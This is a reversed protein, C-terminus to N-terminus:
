LVVRRAIVSAGRGVGLVQAANCDVVTIELLGSSGMYAAPEGPGRDSYTQVLAGVNVGALSIRTDGLGALHAGDINTILNGFHDTHIVEGIIQDGTSIPTPWPLRVLDEPPISEGVSLLTAGTALYAAVPAFIDRGHFTPHLTPMWFQPRNLHVARVGAMDVPLVATLLGNDPAVFTGSSTSVAVPLRNGGVGPDVVALHITDTPFYPVALRLLLAGTAIDQPPVLHSLDVLHANPCIRLIVGKIIGVYSDALGFDTTLTVIPPQAM